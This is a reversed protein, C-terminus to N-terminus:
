QQPPWLHHQRKYTILLNEDNSFVEEPEWLAESIPYGVYYQYGWGRKRHKLIQKVEYVEEGEVLDPPPRPFNEGYVETEKYQWLLTAHFVNHIKWSTPLKLQYTTPGIVKMIKFHGEQRPRIKKHHNPKVNQTNLWVKEKLKFPRFTSKQWKIMRIWALKHAALVEEWNKILTKMKDELTPFKMNEFSYPIAVPPEGFMLEFPSKQRDAHWRNNCTFEMTHVAQPWEDPHSTCYISLYVEIEQNVCETTGDKKPHYAM